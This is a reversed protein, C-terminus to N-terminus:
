SALGFDVPRAPVDSKQWDQLLGASRRSSVARAAVEKPRTYAKTSPSVWDCEAPMQLSVRLRAEVARAYRQLTSLRPDSGENEFGSVTPQKVNMRRAIESQSIGLAKRLSVLNDIIRHVQEADEFAARFAPDTKAEELYPGFEDEFQILAPKAADKANM